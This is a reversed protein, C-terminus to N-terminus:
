SSTAATTCGTNSYSIWEYSSNAPVAWSPAVIVSTNTGTVNNTGVGPSSWIDLTGASAVGGFQAPFGAVLASVLLGLWISRFGTMTQM